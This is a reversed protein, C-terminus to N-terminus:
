SFIGIEAKLLSEKALDVECVRIKLMLNDM